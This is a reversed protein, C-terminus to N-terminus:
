ITIDDFTLQEYDADDNTTTPETTPMSNEFLYKDFFVQKLCNPINCLTDM